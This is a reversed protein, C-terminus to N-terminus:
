DNIIIYYHALHHIKPKLDSKAGKENEQCEAQMCAM